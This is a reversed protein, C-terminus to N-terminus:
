GAVQQGIDSRHQGGELVAQGIASYARDRAEAHDAGIGVFTAVRGGSSVHGTGDARTSAHFCLVPGGDDPGAPEAGALSRGTVPALPYGESALVVGVAAEPRRGVSSEM